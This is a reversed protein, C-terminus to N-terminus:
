CDERNSDFIIDKILHVDVDNCLLKRSGPDYGSLMMVSSQNYVDNHCTERIYIEADKVFKFNNNIVFMDGPKLTGLKVLNYEYTFCTPHMQM